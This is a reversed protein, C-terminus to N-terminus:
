ANSINLPIDLQLCLQDLAEFSTMLVQDRDWSNTQYAQDSRVEQQEGVHVIMGNIM